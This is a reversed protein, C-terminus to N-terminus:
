AYFENIHFIKDIIIKESTIGFEKEIESKIEDAVEANNIAILIFDFDYTRIREPSYVFEGLYAEKAVYNKDVWIFNKCLQEKKIQRIYDKGVKGAGYIILKKNLIEKNCKIVFKIPLNECSFGMKEPSMRIHEFIWKELQPILESSYASKEFAKKLSVYLRNINILFDDHKNHTVSLSNMRYNYNCKNTIYVKKCNIIYKYVFEGDEGYYIEEDLGEFIKKTLGTEFRKANISSLIGRSINDQAYIMNKVVPSYGAVEYGGVKICDYVKKSGISIGSTVLENEKSIKMMDEVYDSDVYDDSDVFMIYKGTARRVGNRRANVVGKNSQSLVIIRNDTQAIDNCIQLSNDASGDDVLIIELKRYTQNIISNICEEIFEQSNYVPVIISVIQNEEM